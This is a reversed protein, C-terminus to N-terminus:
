NLIRLLNLFQQIQRSFLLQSNGNEGRNAISFIFTLLLIGVIDDLIAANVICRGEIGKLKGMVLLTMVSVSVSTATFITGVILSEEINKVTFNLGEYDNLVFTDGLGLNEYLIGETSNKISLITQTAKNVTINYIPYMAQKSLLMSECEGIQYTETAFTIM